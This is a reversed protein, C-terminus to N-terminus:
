VFRDQMLGSVFGAFRHALRRRVETLRCSRCADRGVRCRGCWHQLLRGRRRPGFGELLQEHLVLVSLRLERVM